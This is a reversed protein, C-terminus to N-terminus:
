RLIIRQEQIRCYYETFESSGDEIWVLLCTKEAFIDTCMRELVPDVVGIGKLVPEM